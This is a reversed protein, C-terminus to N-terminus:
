RPHYRATFLTLNPLVLNGYVDAPFEFILREGNRVVSAYPHLYPSREGFQLSLIQNTAGSKVEFDVEHDTKAFGFRDLHEDGVGDWYVARLQGIRFVCEELAPSDIHIQSNFGPAYTWDGDPDRLLKNVGGHQHVTVSVVNSTAFSWIERDRLQWSVRPLRDFDDRSVTNVCDEGSRREFVKGAQNLGFDIRAETQSGANTSFRIFYQLCPNTLGYPSFDTVVTKFIETPVNTFGALWDNMLAADAPFSKGGVVLWQGNTQKRVVFNDDGRVTISEVLSPSLSIFHQDLFNTYPALWARIADRAIVVVNGQDDRRAFALQPYNTPSRGVQFGAVARTHDLFSIALDPTTDSSQLGFSDLDAQPDDTVFGSVSVSQLRALLDNIKPTDARAPLPQRMFWLHNTPDRELDFEKGAARVRLTQFALNTLNLLSPDRWQYKDPPLWRLINNDTQYIATNGVVQLSVRDGFPGLDGIELRRDPGSGQLLLTFRPKTFGFEEQADPRDKLESESVRDLWELKALGNLFSAVLQSEAPYSVPQLLRWANGPASQRVAQIISQGWPHIEINTVLAPEFGPLIVRSAQLERQRRLPQDVLVIFAFLVAAVALLVWTPKWNM